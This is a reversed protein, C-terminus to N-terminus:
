LAGPARRRWEDKLASLAVTLAPAAAPEIAAPAEALETWALGLRRAADDDLLPGEHYVPFGARWRRLDGRLAGRRVSALLKKYFAPTGPDVERPLCLRLWVM